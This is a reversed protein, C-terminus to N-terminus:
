LWRFHLRCYTPTPHPLNTDPSLWTSPLIPNCRALTQGKCTLSKTETLNVNLVTDLEQSVWMLIPSFSNSVKQPWQISCQCLLSRSSLPKSLNEESVCWCYGYLTPYKQFPCLSLTFPPPNTSKNKNKMLVLIFSLNDPTPHSFGSSSRPLLLNGTVSSKYRTMLSPSLGQTPEQLWWLQEASTSAWSVSGTM